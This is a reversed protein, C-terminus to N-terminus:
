KTKEMVRSIFSERVKVVDSEFGELLITIESWEKDNFFIEKCLRIADSNNENM